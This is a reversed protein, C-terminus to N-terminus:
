KKPKEELEKTQCRCFLYLTKPMLRAKKEDSGDKPTPTAESKDNVPVFSAVHLATTGKCPVRGMAKWRLFTFVDEYPECTCEPFLGAEKRAEIATIVQEASKDSINDFTQADAATMKAARDTRLTRRSNTPKVNVNKAPM